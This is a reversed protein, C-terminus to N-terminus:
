GAPPAPTTQDRIGLERHMENVINEDRILARMLQPFPLSGLECARQILYPIPSHPEMQQLVSALDHLQRYIDARTRVARAPAAVAGSANGPAGDAGAQEAEASEAETPAAEDSVPGGKRHL